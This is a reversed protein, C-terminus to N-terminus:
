RALRLSVYVSRGVSPIIGPGPYEDTRRTFYHRDALNNVGGQVRWHAGVRASTSLDLVVYAPILGVVADDSRATNNADGFSRGVFSTLFTGSVPGRALTLGAREVMRPAYEVRHGTFEGTVYRADVLALANFVTAAARVRGGADVADRRAFPTVEVYSELGRHVSNAVNTRETFTTGDASERSVLGVRGDYTLRFVGVDFRVRDAAATGRWGLDANTGHADRLSPDIRSVGGIPTLASYDVPRYAQTVNAYVNTNASAIWGAALGALPVTRRKAQPAFTTDTYGDARSRLHELRVGPTVTLRDGLRIANEVWASLASQAFRIDYEYAAGPALSLDFDGATTGEGGGQRHMQGNFWRIGLSLTNSRGFADHEALLRLEQTANRFGEREVERPVLEGTGPDAVDLAGPGGDENRWVLARSSGLVSTVSELRVGPRPRWDLTLSGVNWPSTLWNRTRFSQRAGGEFQADSLGGPMHIRNRLLSYDVKAMLTPALAAELAVYGSTQLVDSSPRWGDQDRRQVYTFYRLRGATGGLSGYTNRLGFSGATQQLEGALPRAPDGRKMVYNVMGGFQPGYQLGAAGRVLEVREVAELPPLYYTESYGYPDAAVIVGNQRVNMEVSQTPNLGRVAIGNSPFGSGETEAVVLGPVRGLVQRAVNQAANAGVSDVLLVETKKGTLLVAGNREPLFTVTRPAIREATVRVPALRQATPRARRGSDATTSTSDQALLPPASTLGVVLLLAVHPHRRLMARTPTKPASRM